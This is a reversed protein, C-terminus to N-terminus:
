TYQKYAGITMWAPYITGLNYKKEMAYFIPEIKPMNADFYQKITSRPQAILKIWFECIVYGILADYILRGEAIGKREQQYEKVFKKVDIDIRNKLESYYAHISKIQTQFEERAVYDDYTIEDMTEILSERTLCNNDIAEDTIKPLNKDITSKDYLKTKSTWEEWGRPFYSRTYVSGMEIYPKIIRYPNRASKIEIKKKHLFEYM